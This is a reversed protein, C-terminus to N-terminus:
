SPHTDLRYEIAFPIREEILHNIDDNKLNFCGISRRIKRVSEPLIKVRSISEDDHVDQTYAASIDLLIIEKKESWFRFRKRVLTIFVVVQDVLMIKRGDTIDTGEREDGTEVFVRHVKWM